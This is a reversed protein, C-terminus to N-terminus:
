KGAEKTGLYRWLVLRSEPTCSPTILPDNLQPSIKEHSGNLLTQRVDNRRIRLSQRKDTRVDLGFSIENENWPSPDAQGLHSPFPFALRASWSTMAVGCCVQDSNQTRSSCPDFVTIRNGIEHLQVLMPIWTNNNQFGCQHEGFLASRMIVSVM